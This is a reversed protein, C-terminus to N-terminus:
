QILEIGEDYVYLNGKTLCYIYSKRGYDSDVYLNQVNFKQSYLFAQLRNKVLKIENWYPFERRINEAIQHANPFNQVIILVNNVNNKPINEVNIWQFPKTAIFVDYKM